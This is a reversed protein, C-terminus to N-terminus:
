KKEAITRLRANIFPSGSNWEPEEISDAINFSLRFLLKIHQVAADYNLLQTLDDFPTHYINDSFYIFKELGEEKTLNKYDIGDMVLISPIGVSAFTIQDSMRFSESKMFISPVDTVNLNEQSASNILFNELTSYETGFGVVSNFEDFSAVGDININAITKYLPVIPHDVYYKSGLLGMEEGTLLMFIISRKPKVTLKTFAEAIELLASVGAANDFVGNYISDQNISSGIGLHDYHASIILYSDALKKDTGKIMGIINPALFDRRKFEGKFNMKINLPFSQIRNEKHMQLIDDYSYDTASFIIDCNIPNLILSLQSTVSYALSLKEFSFLQKVKEWSFNPEEFLNPILIIGRAGRSLAIREKSDSSSYITPFVGNFYNENESFPEGELVAVIKGEVDFDYYDNYDYEPAIIGYGAFVVDIPNPIFTQDGVKNLVYDKNLELSIIRDSHVELKSGSLPRSGHIPVYQYFTNERGIPQLGIRDYELALYKASLNGGITGTGRGEFLDNGLYNLHRKFNGENISNRAKDFNPSNLQANLILSFFLINIFIIKM